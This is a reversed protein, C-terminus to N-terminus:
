APCNVDGTFDARGACVNTGSGQTDRASYSFLPTDQVLQFSDGPDCKTTISFEVPPFQFQTGAVPFPGINSAYVIKIGVGTVEMSRVGMGQQSGRIKGQNGQAPVINTFNLATFLGWCNGAIALNLSFLGDASTKPLTIWSSPDGGVTLFWTGGERQVTTSYSTWLSINLSYSKSSYSDICIMSASSVKTAQSQGSVIVFM